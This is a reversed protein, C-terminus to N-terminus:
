DKRSYHNVMMLKGVEIHEQMMQSLLARDGQRIARVITLHRKQVEGKDARNHIRGYTQLLRIRSQIMTWLDLLLTHESREYFLGHFQIDVEAFEEFNGSQTLREMQEAYGELKDCDAATLNPFALEVAMSELRTRISYVEEIFMETIQVVYTGKYPFVQILGENALQSFAQRVPTISVNLTKAISAEVLREGLELDGRYIARRLTEAVKQSTSREGTIQMNM